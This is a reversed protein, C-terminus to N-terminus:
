QEIVRWQIAFRGNKQKVRGAETVLHHQNRLEHVRPTISNIPWSLFIALEKNTAVRMFRLAQLVELQRAGLDPQLQLWSALTTGQIM